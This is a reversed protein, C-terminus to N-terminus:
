VLSYFTLHKRAASRTTSTAEQLAKQMKNSFIGFAIRSGAKATM